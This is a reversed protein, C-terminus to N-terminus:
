EVIPLSIKITYSDFNFKSMDDLLLDEFFYNGTKFNHKEAYELLRNLMEPIFDFGQTTCVCIASHAPIKVTELNEPIDEPSVKTYFHSNRYDNGWPADSAPIMGGIASSSYVSHDTRYQMHQGLTVYIDADDSGGLHESIVFYQDPQSELYIKGHQASIGERTLDIREDIFKKLWQLEEIKKDVLLSQKELLMLFDDPNRGDLFRKIDALPMDLEKLMSIANFTDLQLYSYYRYGNDGMIEPCLIGIQDYHFLTQKKVRCIDAFEGTTLYGYPKKM